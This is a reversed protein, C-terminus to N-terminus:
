SNIILIAGGIMILTAIAKMLLRHEHFIKGGIVSAFFVSTRKVSLVLAVPALKVAEIQTWRYFVTLAAIGIIIYLITKSSNHLTVSLSRRAILMLLLFNIFQFVQQFAMFTLPPMKLDNVLLRDTISTATFLILAFVIYHHNKSKIFVLFPDFLGKGANNMELMYTGLLLLLMGVIEFNGLSDGLIFFAAIAVLGPTLVIMPLAGSIELNKIAYMVNLFALTGFITKFYLILLVSFELSDFDVGFFFPISFLAGFVSLLFSFELADMKFLAKKEFIAAAASLLASAFALTLWTM